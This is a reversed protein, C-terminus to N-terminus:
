HQQLKGDSCHESRSKERPTFNRSRGPSFIIKYYERKRELDEYRQGVLPEGGKLVIKWKLFSTARVEVREDGGQPLNNAGPLPLIRIGTNM